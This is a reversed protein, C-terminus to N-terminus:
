NDLYNQQLYKAFSANGHLVVDPDDCTSDMACFDDAQKGVQVIEFGVWIDQDFGQYANFAYAAESYPPPGYTDFGVCDLASDWNEASFYIDGTGILYQNEALGVDSGCLVQVIEAYDEGGYRIWTQGHQPSVDGFNEWQNVDSM